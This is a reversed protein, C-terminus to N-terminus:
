LIQHWGFTGRAPYALRLTRILGSFITNRYIDLRDAAAGDALSGVIVAFDRQVLSARMARQWDLLTLM